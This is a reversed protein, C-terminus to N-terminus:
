ETQRLAEAPRLRSARLAPGLSVLLVAGYILALATAMISPDPRFAGLTQERFAPIGVAYGAALGVGVGLTAGLVAEAILGAMVQKPGYGLVRLVGVSHRHDTAARLAVLGLAVVGVLMGLRLLGLVISFFLKRPEFQADLLERTTTADVGQAFVSRQVERALTAADGGPGCRLLMVAGAPSASFPSLARVSGIIGPLLPSGPMTQAVVRLPVEQQGVQFWIVTGPEDTGSVVLSPDSRLAEWVATDSPYAADRETLPLMGDHLQADALGFLTVHQRSWGGSPEVRVQGTFERAAIDIRQGIQPAVSAPLEIPGAVSMVRVDWGAADQRYDPHDAALYGAFSTLLAVVIAFSGTVLAARVPRRGMSTLPPRLTAQLGGSARGALDVVCELLRLNAAVLISLSAVAIPLALLFVPVQQAPPAVEPCTAMAVVAWAAGAASGLSLRLRDPLRGRSLAVVFAILCAGGILRLPPSDVVQAALGVLALLGVWLYRLRRRLRRATTPPVNQILTSITMRSTRFGTVLTTALAILAAGAPAAMLVIPDVEPPALSLGALTDAIGRWFSALGWAVGLAVVAGAAAVVLGYMAAEFVAVLVIDTRGVGLARLVGLQPRRVAALALAVNAFVSAAALALLLGLSTLLLTGQTSTSLQFDAVAAPRQIVRLDGGGPMAALAQTLRPALRLSADMEARGNGQASIRIVNIMPTGAVRQATALALYISRYPGDAGSGQREVVGAVRLREGTEGAGSTRVLLLDGVRAELDDALPRSLLVEDPALADGYTQAGTSLTYRGFSRQAARDFGLLEVDPKGAQRDLDAVWGQVELGPQIGDALRRLEPRSALRDAIAPDFPQASRVQLDVGGAARAAADAVRDQFSGTTDQLGSLAAAGIALSIVVVASRRLNRRVQWYAIHRLLPRRVVLAALLGYAAVLLGVIGGGILSV